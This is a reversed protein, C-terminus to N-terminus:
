INKKAMGENVNDQLTKLSLDARQKAVLMEKDMETLQQWSESSPTLVSGEGQELCEVQQGASKRCRRRASRDELGIPECRDKTEPEAVVQQM